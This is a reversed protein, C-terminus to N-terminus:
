IGRTARLLRLKYALHQKQEKTLQEARDDQELWFTVAAIASNESAVKLDDSDLLAELAAQPLQALKQRGLSDPQM